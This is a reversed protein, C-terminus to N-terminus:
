SAGAARGGLGLRAAVCDVLDAVVVIDALEDDDLRLAITREGLESEIADIADLLAFDDADLDDRLRVEPRLEDADRGLIEALQDIVIAEVDFRDLDGGRSHTEAPM